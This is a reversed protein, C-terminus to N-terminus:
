FRLKRGYWIQRPSRSTLPSGDYNGLIGDTALGAKEILGGFQEPRYLRVSERYRRIGAPDNVIISKEVRRQVIRRREIVTAKGHPSRCVRESYPILNAELYVPNPLDIWWWGGCKLASALGDIVKQDEAMSAFYGISTFWITAGDFKESYKLERMDGLKLVAKYGKQKFRARAQAVLTKSLDIGTVLAGRRAFALMHRGAGCAIDLVKQGPEFPVHRIAVAAQSAAERESRHSYIWLYDEAFASRYWETDRASAACDRDRDLKKGMESNEFRQRRDFIGIGPMLDIVILGDERLFFDGGPSYKVLNGEYIIVVIYRDFGVM